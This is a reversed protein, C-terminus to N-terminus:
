VRYERYKGGEPALSVEDEHFKNPCLIVKANINMVDANSVGYDRAYVSGPHRIIYESFDQVLADEMSLQVWRAASDTLVFELNGPVQLIQVEEVHEYNM